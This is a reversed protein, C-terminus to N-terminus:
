IAPMIRSTVKSARDVYHYRPAHRFPQLAHEGPKLPPQIEPVPKGHLFDRPRIVYVGCPARRVVAEAVSGLILRKIGTVGHTGVVILDSDIAEALALIREAPNGPVVYVAVKALEIPAKRVQEDILKGIHACVAAEAEALPQVRDSTPLRVGIVQDDAVTIVHLEAPKNKECVNVAELVARDGLESLDTGVIVQYPRAKEPAASSPQNTNQTM